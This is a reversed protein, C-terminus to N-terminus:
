ELIEMAKQADNLTLGAGSEVRVARTDDTPTTSLIVYRHKGGSTSLWGAVSEKLSVAQPATGLISKSFGKLPGKRLEETKFAAWGGLIVVGAATERLLWDLHMSPEFDPHRSTAKTVLVGDVDLFVVPSGSPHSLHEEGNNEGSAMRVQAEIRERVEAFSVPRYDNNDVGVDYQLPYLMRLRPHDLGTNARPGSHVHGFLQWVNDYSGGYCLFPYHNLYIKQGDVEIFRQQRVSSFNELGMKKATTMDHNGAILHITGNLQQLIESWHGAPGHAFDGLHFVVGDEPVTENWRRILEQEMEQADKFPRGCYHILSRNGFHTDATFFVKEPPFSDLFLDKGRASILDKEGIVTEKGDYDIVYYSEGEIEAIRLEAKFGHKPDSGNAADGLEEVCAVLLPHHRSIILEDARFLKGGYGHAKLWAVAEPSLLKAPKAYADNYVVKVTAKRM